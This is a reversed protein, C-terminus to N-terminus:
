PDVLNSPGGNLVIVPRPRIRGRSASLKVDIQEVPLSDIMTLFEPDLLQAIWAAVISPVELDNLTVDVTEKTVEETV